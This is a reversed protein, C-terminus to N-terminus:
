GKAAARRRTKRQSATYGELKNENHEIAELLITRIPATQTDAQRRLMDVFDFQEGALDVTQELADIFKQLLHTAKGTQTGTFEDTSIDLYESAVTADELLLGVRPLHRHEDQNRRMFSGCNFGYVAGRHDWPIHNDGIVVVDFGTFDTTRFCASKMTSCVTQQDLCYLYRHVVAVDRTRSRLVPKTPKVGWPYGWFRWSDGRPRHHELLLDNSRFRIIGAQVLTWFASQKIKELSHYPLDHQGPIAYMKPLHEIAWNILEPPSRWYHFVDGACIIPVDFREAIRRLQHLYGAQTALWDKENARAPPPTLSLHLDACLVAIVDRSRVHPTQLGSM